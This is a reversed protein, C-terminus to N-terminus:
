IKELETIEKETKAKTRSCGSIWVIDDGKPPQYDGTDDFYMLVDQSGYIIYEKDIQFQFGCTEEDPASYLDVTTTNMAGKYIKTAEVKYHAVRIYAMPLERILLGDPPSKIQNSDAVLITDASLVKGVLVYDVSKVEEVVTRQERCSCAFSFNFTLVAITLLITKM